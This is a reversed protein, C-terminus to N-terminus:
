PTAGPPGAPRDAPAALVRVKTGATLGQAAGILVTDGAALGATVEARDSEPDRV